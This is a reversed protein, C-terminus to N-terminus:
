VAERGDLLPALRSRIREAQEATQALAIAREAAARAEAMAGSLHLAEAEVIWALPKQAAELSPAVVRRASDPEGVVLYHEGLFYRAVLVPASSEDPDNRLELQLAREYQRGAEELRHMRTLLAGYQGHIDPTRFHREDCIALAADYAAAARDLDGAQWLELGEAALRL